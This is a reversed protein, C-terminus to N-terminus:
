CTLRAAWEPYERKFEEVASVIPGIARKEVRSLLGHRNLYEAESEQLPPRTETHLIGWTLWADRNLQHEATWYATTKREGHVPVGELLWWAFPRSGPREKMWTATLEEGQEDWAAQFHEITGFGGFYSDGREIQQRQDPTLHSADARRTIFRRIRRVM